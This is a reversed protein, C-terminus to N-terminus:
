WKVLVAKGSFRMSRMGRAHEILDSLVAVPNVHKTFVLIVVITRDLRKLAPALGTDINIATVTSITRFLVCVFSIRPGLVDLM